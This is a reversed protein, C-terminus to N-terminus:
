VNLNGASINRRPLRSRRAGASGILVGAVLGMGLWFLWSGAVLGAVIGLVAGLVLGIFSIKKM